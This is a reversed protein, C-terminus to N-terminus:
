VLATDGARRRKKALDLLLFSGKKTQAVNMLSRAGCGAAKRERGPFHRQMPLPISLNGGEEGRERSDGGELTSM